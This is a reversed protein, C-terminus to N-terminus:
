NGVLAKGSGVAALESSVGGGEGEEEGQAPVLELVGVM